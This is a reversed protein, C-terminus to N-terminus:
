LVRASMQASRHVFAGTDLQLLGSAAPGLLEHNAHSGFRLRENRVMSALAAGACSARDRSNVHHFPARTAHRADGVGTDRGEFCGQWGRV